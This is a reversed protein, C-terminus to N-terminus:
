EWRLRLPICIVAALLLADLARRSFSASQISSDDIVKDLAGHLPHKEGGQMALGGAPAVRSGPRASISSGVPLSAAPRLSLRAPSLQVPSITFGAATGLTAICLAAATLSKFLM